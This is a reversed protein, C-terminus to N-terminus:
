DRLSDLDAIIDELREIMGEIDKDSLRNKTKASVKISTRPPPTKPYLKVVAISLVIVTLAIMYYIIM